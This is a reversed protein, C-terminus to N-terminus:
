LFLITLIGVLTCYIAFWILKGRKVIRLMFSCAFWGTVFAAIFGILLSSVPLSANNSFSGSMLDLFNEGLIPILVMLFSFKAVEEKRTGLMLGTAITAGSRSIGPVVAIAQAVGILLVRWYTLPKEKPKIITTLWLLLATVLLMAGIFWMASGDFLTKIIDKFLIGVLLVPIMSIAIKLVYKTEENMRFKFLGTLLKLIEHRLVLITSLVTAGHVVISFNLNESGSIGFLAKGIELHGSSSVPLFETLGQIIGLILAEYWNM